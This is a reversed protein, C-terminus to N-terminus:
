VRRLSIRRVTGEVGSIRASTRRSDAPLGARNEGALRLVLDRIEARDVSPWATRTHGISAILPSAPWYRRRRSWGFTRLERAATPRARCCRGIRGPFRPTRGSATARSEHRAGFDRRGECGGVGWCFWGGLVSWVVYILRVSVVGIERVRDRSRRDSTKARVPRGPGLSGTVFGMRVALIAPRHPWCAAFSEAAPLLYPRRDHRRDCLPAL